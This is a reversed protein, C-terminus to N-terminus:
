RHGGDEDFRLILAPSVLLILSYKKSAKGPKFLQIEITYNGPKPLSDQVLSVERTAHNFLIPVGQCKVVMDIAAEAGKVQALVSSDKKDILDYMPEPIQVTLLKGENVLVYVPLGTIYLDSEITGADM